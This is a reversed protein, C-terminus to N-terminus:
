EGVPHSNWVLAPLEYELENKGAEVPQWNQYTVRGRSGFNNLEWLARSLKSDSTSARLLCEGQANHFCWSLYKGSPSKQLALQHLFSM